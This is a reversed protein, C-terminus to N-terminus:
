LCLVDSEDNQYVFRSSNYVCFMARMMRINLDLVIISM